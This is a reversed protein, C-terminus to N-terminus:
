GVRLLVTPFRRRRCSLCTLSPRRARGLVFGSGDQVSVVHRRYVPCHSWPAPLMAPHCCPRPSDAERGGLISRTVIGRHGLSCGQPLPLRFRSGRSRSDPRGAGSFPAPSLLSLLHSTQLAEMPLDVCSFFPSQIETILLKSSSEVVM